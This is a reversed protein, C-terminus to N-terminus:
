QNILMHSDLKGLVVQQLSWTKEMTYEQRRQCLNFSQLHTPKNRPERNQEVSGGTQKQILVVSNQNSYSKIGGAKKKKRLIAKAIRPRKNNWTFKLIIQELETKPLKIPIM